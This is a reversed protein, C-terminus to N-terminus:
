DAGWFEDEASGLDAFAATARNQGAEIRGDEAAVSWKQTPNDM